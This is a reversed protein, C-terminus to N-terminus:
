FIFIIIERGGQSPLIKANTVKEGVKSRKTPGMRRTIIQIFYFHSGTNKLRMIEPAVSYHDFELPPFEM